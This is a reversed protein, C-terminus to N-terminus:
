EMRYLIWISSYTSFYLSIISYKTLCILFTISPLSLLFKSILILLITFSPKWTPIFGSSSHYLLLREARRIFVECWWWWGFKVVGINCYWVHITVRSCGSNLERRGGHGGNTSGWGWWGDGRCAERDARRRGGIWLLKWLLDRWAWSPVVPRRVIIGIIMIRVIIIRMMMMTSARCRVIGEVVWVVVEILFVTRRRWGITRATGSSPFLELESGKYRQM